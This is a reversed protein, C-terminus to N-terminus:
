PINSFRTIAFPPFVTSPSLGAEVIIIRKRSRKGIMNLRTRRHSVDSLGM